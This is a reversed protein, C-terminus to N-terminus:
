EWPRNPVPAPPPCKTKPDEAGGSSLGKEPSEHDAERKDVLCGKAQGRLVSALGWFCHPWIVVDTGWGVSERRGGWQLPRVPFGQPSSCNRPPPYVCMQTGTPSIHTPQEMQTDLHTLVRTHAPVKHTPGDMDAPHTFWSSSGTHCYTGCVPRRPAVHVQTHRAIDSCRM